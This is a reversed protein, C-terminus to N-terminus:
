NASAEKVTLEGTVEVTLATGALDKAGDTDKPTIKVNYVNNKNNDVTTDVSETVSSDEQTFEISYDNSSVDTVGNKLVGSLTLEGKKEDPIDAVNFTVEASYTPVSGGITREESFTTIPTATVAVPKAFTVTGTATDSLKDWVAFSGVTTVVIASATMFGLMSKKNLKKM